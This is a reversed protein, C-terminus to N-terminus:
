PTSSGDHQLVDTIKYSYDNSAATITFYLEFKNIDMNSVEIRVNGDPFHYTVTEPLKLSGIETKIKERGMQFLTEMKLQQIHAKTMEADRQYHQINASVLILILTTVFLVYPLVFGNEDNTYFLQSKM